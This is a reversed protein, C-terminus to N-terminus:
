PKHRTSDDTGRRGDLALYTSPGNLHTPAIRVKQEYGYVISYVKKLNVVIAGKVRVTVEQQHWNFSRWEYPVAGNAHYQVSM